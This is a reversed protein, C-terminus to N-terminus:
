HAYRRGLKWVGTIKRMVEIHDTPDGDVLILDACLGVAVRGRDHFGFTRAPVFTAASLAQSPTLGSAVLLELERHLSVGHAMGPAPADTGALLPVGARNLESVVREANELKLKYQAAFAAPFRFSLSGKMHPTLRDSLGPERQWWLDGPGATVSEFVTLTPIVFAHHQAVSLAFGTEPVDAFAHALGDVGALIAENAEAQSNIHALVLKNRRHAAIVIEAIQASTLTPLLHEDIIKMYDSGEAIRADVFAQADDTASLTPFPTGGMQTPHGGPATVGIGATRFDALGPDDTHDLERRLALSAKSGFMELETTVGFSLAEHLYEKMNKEGLHTHSDFLGPLLTKGHGEIVQTGKPIPVGPAVARIMGDRVVVNVQRLMRSGDFVDVDHFASAQAHDNAREAYQVPNPRIAFGLFAIVAFVVWGRRLIAGKYRM